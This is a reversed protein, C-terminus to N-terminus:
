FGQENDGKNTKRMFYGSGKWLNRASSREKRLEKKSGSVNKKVTAQEFCKKYTMMKGQYAIM